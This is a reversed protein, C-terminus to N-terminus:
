ELLALRCCAIKLPAWCALMQPYDVFLQFELAPLRDQVKQLATCNHHHTQSHLRPEEDGGLGLAPRHALLVSNQKRDPSCPVMVTGGLHTHPLLTLFRRWSVHGVQDIKIIRLRWLWSLLYPGSHHGLTQAARRSRMTKKPISNRPGHVHRPVLHLLQVHQGIGQHDVHQLGGVAGADQDRLLVLLGDDRGLLLPHTRPLSCDGGWCTTSSLRSSDQTACSQKLKQSKGTNSLKQKGPLVSQM